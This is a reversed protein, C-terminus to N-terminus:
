APGDAAERFAHRGTVPAERGQFRQQPAVRGPQTAPRRSCRHLPRALRRQLGGQGGAAVEVAAVQEDLPRGAGALGPGGAPHDHVRDPAALPHAHRGQRVLGDDIQQVADLRCRLFRADRDSAELLRVPVVLLLLDAASHNDIDEVVGGYRVVGLEHRTRSPEEGPFLPFAREVEEHDVLGPLHRQGVEDGGASGRAVDDEDAVLHLQPLRDLARVRAAAAGAREFVQQLARGHNRRLLADEEGLRMPHVGAQAAPHRLRDVLPPQRGMRRAAPLRQQEGTTGMRHEHRVPQPEPLDRM